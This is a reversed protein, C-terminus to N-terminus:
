DGAPEFCAAEVGRGHDPRFQLRRAIRCSRADEVQDQTVFDPMDCEAVVPEVPQAPLTAQLRACGVTVNCHPM